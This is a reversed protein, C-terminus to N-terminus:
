TWVLTIRVGVVPVLRYTTVLGQLTVTRVAMPVREGAKGAQTDAAKYNSLPTAGRPNYVPIQYDPFPRSPRMLQRARAIYDM